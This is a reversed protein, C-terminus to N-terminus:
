LSFSSFFMYFYHCILWFTGPPRTYLQVITGGVKAEVNGYITRHEYRRIPLMNRIAALKAKQVAVTHDVSKAEGVGLRGNYNGAVALIYTSRIKGLRTQNSVYRKVLIKTHRNFIEVIREISLGTQKKLDQYTGEPDLEAEEKGMQQKYLGAVGPVKDPLDPALATDGGDFGTMSNREILYRYFDLDHPGDVEVWEDSGSEDKKGTRKPEKDEKTALEEQARQIDDQLNGAETSGLVKDMSEALEEGSLSAGQDKGLMKSRMDEYMTLADDIGVGFPKDMQRNVSTERIHELFDDGFEDPTMFRASTDVPRGSKVRKDIVPRITSFDEVYRFRYPDNRMRGQIVMDEAPIAKEGLRLAELQEPTYLKELTETDTDDYDPSITNKFERMVEPKNPNLLGM